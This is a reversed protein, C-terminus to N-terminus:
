TDPRPEDGGGAGPRGLGDDESAASRDAAEPALDRPDKAIKGMLDQIAYDIQADKGSLFGDPPLDLEVDPDIGHGEVLWVKGRPDWGGGEPQTTLGGDRFTKDGRIGVWGGWTRTGVVPGLKFDKFGQALTECDSGGQRNILCVMHGHFARDPTTTYLGRRSSGVALMKRDLHALIMPAVFGGHNWRDDVIMGRKNWQPPFDRSFQRLGLGQMDYLHFYGIQGNSAKDV